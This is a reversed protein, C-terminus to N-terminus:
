FDASKMKISKPIILGLFVHHNKIANLLINELRVYYYCRYVKTKVHAVYLSDTSIIQSIYM